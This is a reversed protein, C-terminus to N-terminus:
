STAGNRNVLSLHPVAPLQEDTPGSMKEAARPLYDICEIRARADCPTSAKAVIAKQVVAQELSETVAGPIAASSWAATACALLSLAFGVGLASNTLAHRSSADITAEVNMSTTISLPCSPLVSATC